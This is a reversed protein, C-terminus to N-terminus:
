RKLNKVIVLLLVAFVIGLLGFFSLQYHKATARLADIQDTQEDSRAILDDVESQLLLNDDLLGANERILDKRDDDLATLANSMDDYRGLRAYDWILCRSLQDRYRESGMKKEIEFCKELCALSKQAQGMECYVKGLGGYAAVLGGQYSIPGAAAIAEDYYGVAEDYRKLAHHVDGLKNLVEVGYGDIGDVVAYSQAKQLHALASDLKVLDRMYIEGLNLHIILLDLSDAGAELEPIMKEFAQQASIANGQEMDITALNMDVGLLRDDAGLQVFMERTRMLMAKAQSYNSKEYQITAMNMLADCYAVSDHLLEAAELADQYWYYASDISGEMMEFRALHWLAELLHEQDDLNRYLECSKQLYAKALDLDGHKGYQYGIAYNAEAEMDPLHLTRAEAISKEGWSICDCFSVGYFDWTLNIMTELRQRGEQTALADQLSDVVRMEAQSFASFSLTVFLLINLLRRM